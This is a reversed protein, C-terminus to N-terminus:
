KRLNNSMALMEDSAQIVKVSTEYARQAVMLDVMEEVLNVNSAEVYGQAVTGIGDEGAQGYMPEGSRESTKYLNGGIGTLGTNDSFRALEIRGVELPESRERARVFVRGDPRIVIENADLGIHIAPKLPHGGATALFGDKDIMLAGGRSFAPSGENAVVELFGEGQIALDLPKDTKKLEGAAFSKLVSALGVGSGQWLRQPIASDIAAAAGSLDRYVLDEFSVRGKKFGPTNVNALNNAITDVGKQQMHMGTAAIYLSDNM